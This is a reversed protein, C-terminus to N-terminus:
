SNCQAIVQEMKTTRDKQAQLFLLCHAQVYLQIVASMYRKDQVANVVTPGAGKALYIESTGPLARSDQKLVKKRFDAELERDINAQGLLEALDEEVVLDSGSKRLDRALSLLKSGATQITERIPLVQTLELGIQFGLSVAM